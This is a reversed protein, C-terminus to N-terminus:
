FFPAGSSAGMFLVLVKDPTLLILLVSPLTALPLV